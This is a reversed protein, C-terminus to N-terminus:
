NVNKNNRTVYIFSYLFIAWVALGLITSLYFFPIFDGIFVAVCIAGITLGIVCIWYAVKDM